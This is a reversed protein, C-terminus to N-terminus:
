QANFTPRYSFGTPLVDDGAFTFTSISAPSPYSDVVGCEALRKRQEAAPQLGCAWMVAFAIPDAHSVGVVHQGPYRQRAESFFRMIRALIHEPQEYDPDNAHYFDWGLQDMEAVTRGDYGSHIENLLGCPTLPADPACLSRVIAATEAARQMPSHYVAIVDEDALARGAAAAQERGLEALGFGPLRGYYVQGPNHVLGHRVLSIRTM